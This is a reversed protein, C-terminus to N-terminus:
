SGLQYGLRRRTLGLLMECTEEVRDALYITSSLPSWYTQCREERGMMDLVEPSLFGTPKPVWIVAPPM